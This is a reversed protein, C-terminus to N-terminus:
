YVCAPEGNPAGAVVPNVANVAVGCVYRRVRRRYVTTAVWWDEGATIEPPSAYSGPQFPLSSWSTAYRGSDAFFNDQLTVLYRLQGRAATRDVKEPSTGRFAPVVYTIVLAALVGGAIGREIRREAGALADPPARRAIWGLAIVVAGFVAVAVAIPILQREIAIGMRGPLAEEPVRSTLAALVMLSIGSLTALRRLTPGTADRHRVAHVALYVGPAIVMLWAAAAVWFLTQQM